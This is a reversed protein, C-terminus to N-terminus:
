RGPQHVEIINGDPDQLFVQHWGAVAWIGYDAYPIGREDLRRKFSDIDDTRFCFHGRELPNVFHKMRFGCNVDKQALHFEISGDHVFDVGGGYGSVAHANIRPHPGTPLDTLAFIERYFASLRGVNETCLNMHHFKFNM